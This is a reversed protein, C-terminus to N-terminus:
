VVSKRDSLALLSSATYAFLSDAFDNMIYLSMMEGEGRGNFTSDSTSSFLKYGVTYNLFYGM